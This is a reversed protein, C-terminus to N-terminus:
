RRPGVVRGGGRAGAAVWPSPRPYPRVGGAGWAPRGKRPAVSPGPRPHAQVPAYFQRPLRPAHWLGPRYHYGGRWWVSPWVWCWSPYGVYVCKPYSYWYSYTYAGYAPQPPYVYVPQQVVPAPPAPPVRQPALKASERAAKEAREQLESARQILATVVDAPIGHEHLYVIEEARPPYATMSREVYARIIGTGVGAAAMKVIEESLSSVSPKPRARSEPKTEKTPPAAAPPAAESKAPANTAPTTKPSEAGPDSAAASGIALVVGAPALWSGLRRLVFSKM